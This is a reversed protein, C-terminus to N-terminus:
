HMAGGLYIRRSSRQIAHISILIGKTRQRTILLNCEGLSCSKCSSTHKTAADVLPRLIVELILEILQGAYLRVPGQRPRPSHARLCKGQVTVPSRLKSEPCSQLTPFPSASTGWPRESRHRPRHGLHTRARVIQTRRSSGVPCILWLGPPAGVKTLRCTVEHPVVLPKLPAGLLPATPNEDRKARRPGRLRPTLNVSQNCM